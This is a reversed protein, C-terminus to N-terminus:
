PSPSLKDMIQAKLGVDVKACYLGSGTALPRDTEVGEQGVLLATPWLFSPFFRADDGIWARVSACEFRHPHIVYSAALLDFPYFGRRGIDDQWYELWDRSNQAVWTIAGGSSALRDLDRSTLEIARAADYPIFSTPLNMAVIQTAARVDQVFNFDRFVPGHGFLFGADAGEAPHFLHGPRRGMVTVLRAVQSRLEPRNGLAVALNTLPGLAVITLAGRELAAQLAEHAPALSVGQELSKASGSYVPLSGGTAASLRAALENTTRDVYERPANGFVTSVGVVDVGPAQALLAIAFCDDPDTRRDRGCAADTDIWIRRSVEPTASAPAFVLPPLPQKGTRWMEVPIAFSVLLGVALVIATVAIVYIVKM